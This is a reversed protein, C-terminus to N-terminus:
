TTTTILRRCAEEAEQHVMILIGVVAVVQVQVEAGGGEEVVM